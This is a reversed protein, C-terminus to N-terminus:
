KKYQNEWFEMQPKAPLTQCESQTDILMTKANTADFAQWTPLGNGNPDGTRSFNVWYSSMLSAIEQDAPEWPRDLTSLNDYAYVIEGSHFAGFQTEPGYAPLARNFNYLYIPNAGTRSQVKAWTYMQVGFMEDRNMAHQSRVSQEENEAPYVRWLSTTDKGFRTAMAQRFAQLTAPQGMLIDNDNWGILMPVDNQHGEQYATMVAEPVVYGDIVPWSVGGRANMILEPALSRLAKLDTVGLERAFQSGAKEAERLDNNGRLSYQYFNGGSEAIARHFLGKALPSVTLYNVAFAGASQGAITVNDPDGGFKNINERVWKLAAIMDLLAYNGSTGSDSEDSLAPLALFGFNGVRYNLSVFVVGKQAMATGDYIPCGSGGSRFGGGYIYVLVPRRETSSNAGTWVNLYLCDESIPEEPILFEQSWFMFPVPKPQVPSPGFELCKKVGKWAVVPQPARWRNPGVPPAAFPIGKYTVIDTGEIKSGTIQGGTVTVPELLAPVDHHFLNTYVLFLIFILAPM